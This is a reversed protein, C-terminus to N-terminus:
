KREFDEMDLENILDTFASLKQLEEETVNAEADETAASEPTLPQGTDQDMSIAAKDMVEDAVYIPVEARVAVAMADSPRSDIEHTQDGVRIVVKAYFTENQLDNVLIHEFSGGVSKVLDVLLDHTLPRPVTMGQMKVAIAEAETPGIWILLFLNTELEKLVVVRQYNMQSIRISDIVLERMDLQM